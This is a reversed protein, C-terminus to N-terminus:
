LRSPPEYDIASNPVEEVGDPDDDGEVDPNSREFPQPAHRRSLDMELIHVSNPQGHPWDFEIRFRIKKPYLMQVMDMFSRWSMSPEIMKKIYNGRAQTRHKPTQPINSSPDSLWRELDASVRPADLRLDILIKRHLRTLMGKAESLGRDNRSYLRQLETSSM